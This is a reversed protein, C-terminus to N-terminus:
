KRDIPLLIPERRAAWLRALVPFLDKGNDLFVANRLQFGASDGIVGHAPQRLQLTDRVEVDASRLSEGIFARLIQRAHRLQEVQFDAAPMRGKGRASELRQTMERLQAMEFRAPSLTEGIAGGRM